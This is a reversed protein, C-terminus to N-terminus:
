RPTPRRRCRRRRRRASLCALQLFAALGEDCEVATVEVVRGVELCEAQFADDAGVALGRGFVLLHLRDVCGDEEGELAVAGNKMRVVAVCVQVVIDHRRLFDVADEGCLGRQFGVLGPCGLPVDHGRCLIGATQDDGSRETPFSLRRGLRLRALACWGGVSVSQRFEHRPECGVEEMRRGVVVFAEAVPNGLVPFLLLEVAQLVLDDSRLCQACGAVSLLQQGLCVAVRRQVPGYAGFVRDGRAGVAGEVELGDVRGLPLQRRQGTDTRGDLQRGLEAMQLVEAESGDVVVGVSTGGRQCAQPLAGDVRLIEVIRPRLVVAVVAVGVPQFEGVAFTVAPEHFGDALGEREGCRGVAYLLEVCRSVIGVQFASWGDVQVEIGGDHPEAVARASGTHEGLVGDGVLWVRESQVERWQLPLVCVPLVAQWRLWKEGVSAQRSPIPFAFLGMLDIQLVSKAFNNPCVANKM